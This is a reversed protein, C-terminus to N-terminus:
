VDRPQRKAAQELQQELEQHKVNPERDGTMRALSARAEIEELFPKLNASTDKRARSLSERLNAVESTKLELTKRLTNARRTAKSANTIRKTGRRVCRVVGVAILCLLAIDLAPNDLMNPLMEVKM